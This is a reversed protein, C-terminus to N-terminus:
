DGFLARSAASSMRVEGLPVSPVSVREDPEPGDGTAPPEGACASALEAAPRDWVTELVATEVSDLRRLVEGLQVSLVKLREEVAPSAPTTAPTTAPRAAATRAATVRVLPEAAVTRLAEAVARRRQELSPPM